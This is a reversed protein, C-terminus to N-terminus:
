TGTPRGTWSVSVDLDGEDGGVGPLGEVIRALEIAQRPRSTDIIATNGESAGYLLWRGHWALDANRECAAFDVRETHIPQAADSGSRLLYVTETGRSGYATDGRTSTFAVARGDPAASLQSSIGDVRTRGRPLLTSAFV